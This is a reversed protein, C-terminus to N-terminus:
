DPPLSSGTGVGRKGFGVRRVDTLGGMVGAGTGFWLPPDRPIISSPPSDGVGNVRVSVGWDPGTLAGTQGWSSIRDPNWLFHHGRGEFLRHM